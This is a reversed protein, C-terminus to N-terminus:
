MADVRRSYLASSMLGVRGCHRANGVLASYAYRHWSGSKM